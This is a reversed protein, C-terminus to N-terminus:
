VTIDSHPARSPEIRKQIKTSDQRDARTTYWFRCRSPVSTGYAPPTSRSMLTNKRIRRTPGAFGNLRTDGTGGSPGPGFGNSCFWGSMATCGGNSYRPYTPMDTGKAKAIPATSDPSISVSPQIRSVLRQVSSAQINRAAAITAPIHHDYSTNPQPPYQAHSGTSFADNMGNRVAVANRCETM